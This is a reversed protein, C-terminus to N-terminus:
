EEELAAIAADDIDTVPSGVNGHDCRRVMCKESLLIKGPKQFFREIGIRRCTLTKGRKNRNSFEGGRKRDVRSEMPAPFLPYKENSVSTLRNFRECPFSDKECHLPTGQSSLANEIRM